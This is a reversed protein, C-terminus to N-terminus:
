PPCDKMDQVGKNRDHDNEQDKVAESFKDGSDPVLVIVIVQDPDVIRKEASVRGNPHFPEIGDKEGAQELDRIDAVIKHRDREASKKKELFLLILEVARDKGDDKTKIERINSVQEDGGDARSEGEVLHLGHFELGAGQALPYSRSEVSELLVLGIGERAAVGGHREHREEICPFAPLFNEKPDQYRSDGCQDDRCYIESIV